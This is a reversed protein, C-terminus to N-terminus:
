LSKEEMFKICIKKELMWINTNEKEGTPFERLRKEETTKTGFKRLADSDKAKEGFKRRIILVYPPRRRQVRLDRLRVEQVLIV